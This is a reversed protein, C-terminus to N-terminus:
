GARRPTIVPSKAQPPDRGCIAKHERSTVRAPAEYRGDSRFPHRVWSLELIHSPLDFGLEARTLRQAQEIFDPDHQLASIQKLLPVIRDFRGKVEQEYARLRANAGQDTLPHQRHTIPLSTRSLNFAVTKSSPRDRKM